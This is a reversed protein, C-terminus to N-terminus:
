GLTGDGRRGVEDLVKGIFAGPDAMFESEYVRLVTWGEAELYSDTELDRERNRTLKKRWSEPLSDSVRRGHWFDGDLFVAVKAHEFVFDANRTEPGGRKWGPVSAAFVREQRTWRSRVARMM